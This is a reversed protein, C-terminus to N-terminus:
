IKNRRKLIIKNQELIKNYEKEYDEVTEVKKSKLQKNIINIQNYIREQEEVTIKGNKYNRYAVAKYANTAKLIEDLSGKSKNVKSRCKDSCYLKNNNQSIIVNCCNHNHCNRIPVEMELSNYTVLYIAELLSNVKLYKIFKHNEYDFSTKLLINSIVCSLLSNILCYINLIIENLTTGRGSVFVYDEEGEVKKIIYKNSIYYILEKIADGAKYESDKWYSFEEYEQVKGINIMYRRIYNDILKFDLKKINELVINSNEEKIEVIDIMKLLMRYIQSEEKFEEISIETNNNISGYCKIFNFVDEDTDIAAFSKVIEEYVSMFPQSKGNKKNVIKIKRNELQIEKEITVYIIQNNMKDGKRPLPYEVNNKLVYM